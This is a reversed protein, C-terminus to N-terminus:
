ARKQEQENWRPVRQPARLSAASLLGEFETKRQQAQYSDFGDMFFHFAQRWISRHEREAIRKTEGYVDEPMRMTVKMLLKEM